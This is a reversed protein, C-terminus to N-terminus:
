LIKKDRLFARKVTAQILICIYIQKNFDSQYFQLMRIKM